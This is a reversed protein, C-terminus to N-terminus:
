MSAAAVLELCFQKKLSQHSWFAKPQVVVFHRPGSTQTPFHSHEDTVERGTFKLTTGVLEGLPM